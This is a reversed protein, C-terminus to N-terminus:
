FREACVIREIETVSLGRGTRAVYNAALEDRGAQEREVWGYPRLFGDVAEPALGFHWVGGLVFQRHLGAADYLNTGDLFDQRVYTFVIRSAAGAKSLFTLLKQLAAATLYQTVGECVVLTRQEIRFGRAALAGELDGTELDIAVLAVREPLRGYVTRVAAEKHAINVPLDVEYVPVGAPAVLRYARTDLGAGLIVVADVGADIAERVREDIYRKRCAMGAWIGPTRKETRDILWDRLLRWRCAHVLLRLGWPLFHVALGDEILRREAPMIQECAVVVMPGFATQAAPSRKTM